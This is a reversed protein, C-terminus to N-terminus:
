LCGAFCRSINGFRAMYHPIVSLVFGFFAFWDRVHHRLWYGADARLQLHLTMEPAFAEPHGDVLEPWQQDAHHYRDDNLSHSSCESM